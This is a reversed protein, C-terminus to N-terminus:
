MVKMSPKRGDPEEVRGDGHKAFRPENAAFIPQNNPWPWGGFQTRQYEAFGEQLEKQTNMVFPGQQAVPEGLPVGQLVLIISPKPGNTITLRERVATHQFGNQNTVVTGSINVGSGPGGHVYLIRETKDNNTGPLKLSSRPEMNILWIAVDGNPDSAYSNEPPARPEVNDFKGAIVRVTATGLGNDRTVIPMDDNWIMKFEPPSLKTKAPLNLWIQYMEFTNPKDQHVLPFM